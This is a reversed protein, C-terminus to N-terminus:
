LSNPRRISKRAIPTMIKEESAYKASFSSVSVMNREIGSVNQHAHMVM